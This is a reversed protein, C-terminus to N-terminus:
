QVAARASERARAAAEGTVAADQHPVRRVVPAETERQRRRRGRLLWDFIKLLLQQTPRRRRAPDEKVGREAAGGSLRLSSRCASTGRDGDREDVRAVHLRV